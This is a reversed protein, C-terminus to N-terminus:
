DGSSLYANLSEAALLIHQSMANSVADSDGREVAAIIGSHQDFAWEARGPVCRLWYHPLKNWVHEITELLHTSGSASYILSHFRWNLRPIDRLQGARLAAEWERHTEQLDILMRGRDYLSLRDIALRTAFPELVNRVQYIEELDKRTLGVVTAGRRPSIKVLGQAELILFAERIPTPSMSLDAALKEEGLREGPAYLGDLIARKIAQAARTRKTKPFTSAATRADGDLHDLTGPRPPSVM